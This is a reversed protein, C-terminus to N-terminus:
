SMFPQGELLRRAVGGAAAEASDYLVGAQNHDGGIWLMRFRGHQLELYGLTVPDANSWNVSVHWAIGSIPVLNVSFDAGRSGHRNM